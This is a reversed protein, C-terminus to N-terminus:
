YGPINRERNLTSRINGIDRPLTASGNNGNISNTTSGYDPKKIRKKRKMHNPLLADTENRLVDVDTEYGRDYPIYEDDDTLVSMFGSDARPSEMDDKDSHKERRGLCFVLGIMVGGFLILGLIVGAGVSVWGLHVHLFNDDKKPENFWALNLPKQLLFVCSLNETDNNGKYLQTCGHNLIRVEQNKNYSSTMPADLKQLQLMVKNTSPKHKCVLGGESLNTRIVSDNYGTGDICDLIKHVEENPVLHFDVFRLLDSISETINFDNLSESSPILLSYPKKGIIANKINPYMKLIDWFFHNPFNSDYTTKILEEIPIEFADGFLVENVVHIVGQLFLLDSNLQVDLATDNYYLTNPNKLVSSKEMFVLDDNLNTLQVTSNFDSYVLGELFLGKMLSQHINPNNLLYDQVLGLNTWLNKYKTTGCPLFITYGQNNDDLSYLDFTNIYELTKLCSTRDIDISELHRHVAGSSILDGLSHKLNTPASIEGNAIYISSGNAIHLHNLIHVDDNVTVKEKGHSASLKLKYCGGIRKNSCLRTNLLVHMDDKLDFSSNVFQYLLNQRASFSQLSVNEISVEDADVDVDDGDGDDDADDRDEINLFLTQDSRSGDILYDLSRFYLEEVFNSYHLAYLAKRPIMEVTPIGLNEFFSVDENFIHVAGNSFVRTHDAIVGDVEVQHNDLAFKHLIGYKSKRSSGTNNKGVVLDSFMLNILLNYADYKVEKIADTTTAYLDLEGNALYYNLQLESLSKKMLENNPILITKTGNFFEECSRPLPFPKEKKPKKKKKKNKKNKNINISKSESKSSESEQDPDMFLLELIKTFLSIDPDLNNMLAQCMTPKLPLLHDIGQIYSYQHKAYIDEEVISAVEDIVYELSELDPSIRVLYNTNDIMYLTDFVREDKDLDGVRLKQNVVYRALENNEWDINTKGVFALNIPALLTVNELENLYPIMGQRQLVRLFYSFQPDSSLLDIITSPTPTPETSSSSTTTSTTRTTSLSLTNNGMVSISLYLIVLWLIQLMTITNDIFSHQKDTAQGLFLFFLAISNEILLSHSVIVSENHLNDM